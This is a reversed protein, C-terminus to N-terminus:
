VSVHLPAGIHHEMAEPKIESAAEFCGHVGESGDNDAELRLSTRARAIM